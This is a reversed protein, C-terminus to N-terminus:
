QEPRRLKLLARAEEPTAPERGLQRAMRVMKEVLQANSEALVGKELYVNDELGTRVNGGMAMALAAMRFHARGGIASVLWLADTPLSDAMHILDRPTAATVQGPIGMVFNVWLPDRLWEQERLMAINNLMTPSYVELEPKVGNNLMAGAITELDAYSIRLTFDRSWSGSARDYEGVMAAGVSFSAMEPKLERIVAMREELPLGAIAGGTTLNIVVDCGAARIGRVIQRFVEVDSTARGAKDRAHIHVIAAGAQWCAIAQSIIEDPQEPLNPNAGKGQQAGTLAATLILKDMM